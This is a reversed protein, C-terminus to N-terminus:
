IAAHSRIRPTAILRKLAPLGLLVQSGVCGAYAM